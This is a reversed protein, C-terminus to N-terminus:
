SALVLTPINRPYRASFHPEHCDTCGTQTPTNPAATVAEPRNRASAQAQLPTKGTSMPHGIKAYEGAVNLSPM